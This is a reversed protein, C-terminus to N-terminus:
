CVGGKARIWCGANTAWGDPAATTAKANDQNITFTFGTMSAKGTATLTYHTADQTPCNFNFYESTTSDDDCAPAAEYTKNDQFYQELQTRKTALNSTAEIIRGRMVYDNYAPLAITALISVIAVVIMLELLTFGAERRARGRSVVKRVRRGGEFISIAEVLRPSGPFRRGCTLQIRV